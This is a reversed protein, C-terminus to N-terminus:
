RRSPAIQSSRTKLYDELRQAWQLPMRKGAKKAFSQVWQPVNGGMDTQSLGLLVVGGAPHPRLIYGSLLTQARIVDNTPELGLTSCQSPSCSHIALAYGQEGPLKMLFREQVMDRDKVGPLVPVRCYLFDCFSQTSQQVQTGLVEYVKFAKSDWKMRE